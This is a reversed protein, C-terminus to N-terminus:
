TRSRGRAPTIEFCCKPRDSRDCCGAVPAEVIEAVLSEMARCVARHKGTVAALPCSVGRIVYRNNEEVHTIAGLEENMLDSARKVRARLDGDGRKKLGLERVMQRGAERFLPELQQEAEQRSFALLNRVIAAVRHSEQTIEGAFEAVLEPERSRMGILEAYNM